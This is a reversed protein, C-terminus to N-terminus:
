NKPVINSERVVNGNQDVEIYDPEPLEIRHEPMMRYFGNGSDLMERLDYVRGRFHVIDIFSRYKSDYIETEEVRNLQPKEPNGM